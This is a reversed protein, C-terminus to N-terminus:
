NKEVIVNINEDEWIKVVHFGAESLKNEFEKHSYIYYYREYKKNDITWPIFLAGHKGKVRAHNKSWVSIFCKAGKKMKKFLEKLMAKRGEESDVCHLVAVCIALDFSNDEFPIKGDDIKRLEAYIGREKATERALKIMRESFDVGCFRVGKIDLFNRGSGCGLDLIKYREQAYQKLFDKAPKYPESRFEKWKSAIADWVAEQSVKKESTPKVM